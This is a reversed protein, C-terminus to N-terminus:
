HDCQPCEAGSRAMLLQQGCRTCRNKTEYKRKIVDFTNINLVKSLSLISLVCGSNSDCRLVTGPCQVAASCFSSCSSNGSQVLESVCGAREPWLRGNALRANTASFRRLSASAAILLFFAFRSENLPRFMVDCFSLKRCLTAYSCHEM